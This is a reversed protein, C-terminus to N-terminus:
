DSYVLLSDAGEDFPYGPCAKLLALFDDKVTKGKPSPNSSPNSPPSPLPSFPSNSNPPSTACGDKKEKNDTKIDIEEKIREEGIRTEIEPGLGDGRKVGRSDLEPYPKQRYYPTQRSDWDTFILAHLPVATKSKKDFIIDIDTLTLDFKKFKQGTEADVLVKIFRWNNNIEGKKLTASLLKPSINLKRALGQITTFDIQGPPNNLAGMCLLDAYVGRQAATFQFRASNGLWAEPLWRMFRPQKCKKEKDNGM